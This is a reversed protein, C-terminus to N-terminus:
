TVTAVKRYKQVVYKQTETAPTPADLATNSRCNWCKGGALIGILSADHDCSAVRSSTLGSVPKPTKVPKPELGPPLYPM